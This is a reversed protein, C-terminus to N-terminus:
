FFHLLHQLKELFITVHIQATSCRLGRGCVYSPAHNRQNFEHHTDFTGALRFLQHFEQPLGDVGLVPVDDKNFFVLGQSVIGYM